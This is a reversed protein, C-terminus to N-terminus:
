GTIRALACSEGMIIDPCFLTRVGPFIRIEMNLTIHWFFIYGRCSRHGSFNKWSQSVSNQLIRNTIINSQFNWDTFSLILEVFIRLYASMICVASTLLREYNLYEQRVEPNLLMKYEHNGLTYFVPIKESLRSLLVAAAQLTETKRNVIMDGAVLVAAPDHKLVADYLEQHNNGYILGHLDTLFAFRVKHGNKLKDTHIEYTRTRFTKKM